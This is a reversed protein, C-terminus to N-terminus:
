SGTGTEVLARKLEGVVWLVLHISLVGTIVPIVLAGPGSFITNDLVWWAICLPHGKPDVSCSPMGPLSQPPANNYASILTSLLGTAQQIISLGQSALSVIFGIVGTIVSLLLTVTTGLTSTILDIVPRILSIFALLVDWLGAGGGGEITTVQGLAINRFHGNLYPFLRTGLWKGTMSASDSWYRAQWGVLTFGDDIRKYTKRLLPFLECQFANDLNAWHWATWQGVDSGVPPTNKRCGSAPEWGAGGQGPFPGELCVDLIEISLLSGAPDDGHVFSIVMPGVTETTVPISVSRKEYMVLYGAGVADIPAGIDYTVGDYTVKLTYTGTAAPLALFARSEVTLTYTYEVGEEEPLLRVDQSISGRPVANARLRLAGTLETVEGEVVTWSQLGYDFSSNAFYCGSPAVNPAGRTACVYRLEVDKRGTNSVKVTYSSGLDPTHLAAAIEYRTLESLLATERQITEGLHLTIAAEATDGNVPAALVSLALDVGTPLNLEQYISEGPHLIVGPNQWEVFNGDTFWGYGAMNLDTNVTECESYAANLGCRDESTPYTGGIQPLLPLQQGEAYYILAAVGRDTEPYTIDNLAISGFIGGLASWFVAAVGGSLATTIAAAGVSTITVLGRAFSNDITPLANLGMTRGLVCGASIADGAEVFQPADKVVYTISADDDGYSVDVLYANVGDIYFFDFFEADVVQPDVNERPLAGKCFPNEPTAPIVSIVLQDLIYEVYSIQACNDWRLPEVSLVTGSAVAHVFADETASVAHLTNVSGADDDGIIIPAYKYVVSSPAVPGLAQAYQPLRSADFLTVEDTRELPRLLTGIPEPDAVVIDMSFSDMNSLIDIVTLTVTYTGNEWYSHMPNQDISTDGDGFDWNWVIIDGVSTDTFSVTLPAPGSAPTAEFSADFPPIGYRIVYVETVSATTTLGSPWAPPDIEFTLTGSQRPSVTNSVSHITATLPAADCAAQAVGFYRMCAVSQGGAPDYWSSSIGIPGTLAANVRGSSSYQNPSSYGESGWVIAVINNGDSPIETTPGAQGRTGLTIPGWEADELREAYYQATQARVAPLAGAGLALILLSFIMLRRM